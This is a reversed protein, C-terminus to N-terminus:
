PGEWIRIQVHATRSRFIVLYLTTGFFIRGSRQRSKECHVPRVTRAHGKSSRALVNTTCVNGVSILYLNVYNWNSLFLFTSILHLYPIGCDLSAISSLAVRLTVRVSLISRDIKNTHIYCCGSIAQFTPLLELTSGPIVDHLTINHWCFVLTCDSFVFRMTYQRVHEIILRDTLDLVSLM